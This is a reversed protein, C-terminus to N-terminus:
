SVIERRMRLRRVLRHLEAAKKFTVELLKVTQYCAAINLTEYDTHEHQYGVSLNVSQIGHEAWIRTDSSSGATCNWGSLGNELAVMEFFQGYEDDCFPIVGACSTVIDGSGRRDVVIAANTGWLFYEDVQRAGVLGVEEKVTFIYKVKGSFSINELKKAMQLLVAVGARDDAGLIGKSSTWIGNEKVITRDIELESAVDLHANLLITPGHGTKYTKEALLNGHRDITIFDVHPSLQEKVFDRIMEENGSVGSLSLLEELQHYFLQEEIFEYGKDLWSKEVVSMKEALDLLEIKKLPLSLHYNKGNERYHIRKMGFALLMQSLKEFDNGEKSIVIHAVRRGHGDCSGVTQFGLRILQRVIGSIYTDLENLKPEETNPQFWFGGRGRYEFDLVEIWAEEPIPVIPLVLKGGSVTYDVHALELSEMLFRVNGETETRLNFVNEKENGLNWGHRLFLQNWTKM